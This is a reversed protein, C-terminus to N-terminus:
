DHIRAPSCDENFVRMAPAPLTENDHPHFASQTQLVPPLSERILDLGVYCNTAAESSLNVRKTRITPSIATTHSTPKHLAWPKKRAEAMRKKGKEMEVSLSEASKGSSVGFLEASRDSILKNPLEIFRAKKNTRPCPFLLM